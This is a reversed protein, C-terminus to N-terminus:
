AASNLKHLHRKLMMYGSIVLSKKSTNRTSYAPHYLPVFRNDLLEGHSHYVDPIKPYVATIASYGCLGVIKPGVIDIEKLLYPRAANIEEPELNRTQGSKVRPWYKLVNTRFTNYIDINSDQLINFLNIGARGQFPQRKANELRGPAEGILMIDARMPGEGGVFFIGPKRFHEFVPDRKYQDYLERLDEISGAM